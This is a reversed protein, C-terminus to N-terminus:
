VERRLQTWPEYKLQIRVMRVILREFEMPSFTRCVWQLRQVLSAKLADFRVRDQESSRREIGREM